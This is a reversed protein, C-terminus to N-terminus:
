GVCIGGHGAGHRTGTGSGPGLDQRCPKAGLRALQTVPLLDEGGGPQPQPPSGHSVSCFASRLAWLSTDGEAPCLVVQSGESPLFGTHHTRGVNQPSLAESSAPPSACGPLPLWPAQHSAPLHAPWSGRLASCCLLDPDAMHKVITIPSTTWPRCVAM